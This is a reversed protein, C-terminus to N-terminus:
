ITYKIIQNTLKFAESFPYQEFVALNLQMHMTKIIVQISVRTLKKIHISNIEHCYLKGEEKDLITLYYQNYLKYIIVEFM